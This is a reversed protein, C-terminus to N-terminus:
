VMENYIRVREGEKERKRGRKGEKERKRGREGEREREKKRRRTVNHVRIYLGIPDQIKKLAPHFATFDRAGNLNLIGLPYNYCNISDDDRM